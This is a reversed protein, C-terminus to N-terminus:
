LRKRYLQIHIDQFINSIDLNNMSGAQTEILFSMETNFQLDQDAKINNVLLIM